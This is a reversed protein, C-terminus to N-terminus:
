GQEQGMIEAFRRALVSPELPLALASRAQADEDVLPRYVLGATEITTMREPIVAIGHGAAVLNLMSTKRSMVRATRPVIGRRLCLDTVLRALGGRERHVASVFAEQGLENLALAARGALPHGAPLAVWLREAALEIFTVGPDRRLLPFRIIGLDAKGNALEGIQAESSIRDLEIRAGPAADLFRAISPMLSSAPISSSHMLRLVGAEGRSLQVGEDAASALLNEVALVRDRYVSGAATLRVGRAERAFLSFGLEEELQAIQRSLAPQAVFAAAAAQTFSGLDAVTLFYRIQKLSPM